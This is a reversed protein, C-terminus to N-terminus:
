SRSSESNKKQLQKKKSFNLFFACIKCRKIVEEINKTIDLKFFLTSISIWLFLRYESDYFQRVGWFLQTICCYKNVIREHWHVCHIFLSSHAIFRFRSISLLYWFSKPLIWNYSDPFVRMYYDLAVQLLIIEFYVYSFLSVFSMNIFTDKYTRNVYTVCKKILANPISEWKRSDLNHNSVSFDKTM